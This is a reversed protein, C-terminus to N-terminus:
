SWLEMPLQFAFVGVVMSDALAEGIEAVTGTASGHPPRQPPRGGRSHLPVM